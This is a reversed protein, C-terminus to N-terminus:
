VTPSYLRFWSFVFFNQKSSSGLLRLLLFCPRYFGSGGRELFVLMRVVFGLSGVVGPVKLLQQEQANCGFLGFSVVCMEFVFVGFLCLGFCCCREFALNGPLGLRGCSGTQLLVDSWVTKLLRIRIFILLPRRFVFLLSLVLYPALYPALFVKKSLSRQFGWMM